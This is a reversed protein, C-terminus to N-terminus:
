SSHHSLPHFLLFVLSLHSDTLTFLLNIFCSQVPCLPFFLFCFFCYCHTPQLSENKAPTGLRFKLDEANKLEGVKGPATNWALGCMLDVEMVQAM